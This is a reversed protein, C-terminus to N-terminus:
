RKLIEVIYNIMSDAVNIGTCEFINRIHANSNVECVYRQGNEGFLLDVGAFDTGVVKSCTVALQVEEPTPEYPKMTAGASVNARFDATSERLMAAVVRDGVVNLRIDKGYSTHILEQIVFPTTGVKIVKEFFTDFSDILYVQQGFSGFAEKMVFPYGLEDAIQKYYMADVAEVSFFRMPAIITKPIPLQNDALVQYMLTKDDCNEISQASNFLPIQLTELQQALRIDKDAFIVFDPYKGEYPGKIISQGSEITVVLESNKILITEIGKRHAAAQVWKAYDLFKEAKLSGNYIIWGTLKKM